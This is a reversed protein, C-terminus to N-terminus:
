YNNSINKIFEVIESVVIEKHSWHLYHKSDKITIQTSNNSWNLLELQVKEWENGSDSSLILLPIDQLYGNEIVIKANENIHKLVDLNSNNGIFKYYMAEDINKIDEPLSEYRINEGIFPLKIGINGLARNIGTVRLIASFRNLILSKIELDNVYYQPSGGDLLIIGQIEDPYVQAYRIAELSALSHAVLIYPPSQNSKNFLEHLDSVLNDVTRPSDISKSWGFGAHDFSLTKAYQQLENQLYYFDTYSNPTGSGSIFVITNNGNGLRYLHMDHSNIDLVEGVPTYMKMEKAEMIVQWIGGIILLISFSIGIKAINRKYTRKKKHIKM